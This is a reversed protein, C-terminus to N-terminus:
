SPIDADIMREGLFHTWGRAHAEVLEIPLGHHRLTLRTGSGDAVINVEVTTSGPALDNHEWGFTFVVRHPEDLELYKGRMVPGDELDVRVEGGVRADVTAARGWWACFGVPTTWMSYVTHPSADIHITHELTTTITM